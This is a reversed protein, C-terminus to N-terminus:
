KSDKKEALKYQNHLNPMCQSFIANLDERRFGSFWIQRPRYLNDFPLITIVGFYIPNKGKWLPTM